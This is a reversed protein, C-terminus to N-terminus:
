CPSLPLILSFFHMLVYLAILDLVVALVIDFVLTKNKTGEVYSALLQDKHFQILMNPDNAGAVIVIGNGDDIKVVERSQIDM